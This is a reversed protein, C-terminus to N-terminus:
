HQCVPRLLYGAGTSKTDLGENKYPAKNIVPKLCTSCRQALSLGNQNMIQEWKVFSLSTHFCINNFQQQNVLKTPNLKFDVKLKKLSIHAGM